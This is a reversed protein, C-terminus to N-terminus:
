KSAEVEGSWNVVLNLVSRGPRSAPVCLVVRQGDASVDAGVTGRPLRFLARPAGFRIDPGPEVPTALLTQGDGGLFYLERGDSRWRTLTLIANTLPTTGDTSVRFKRDLAPFSQVYIEFRGSEDSRYAIWRGDPSIAADLENFRTAILPAAEHDGTLPVMWIDEGTDGSLSRYILQRGDPTIDNPDNFLNPVDALLEEAGAGDARKWYLNRGGSRDSGYVVRKGDGTWIPNGDYIADFTFRTSVGRVLDVMWLAAKSEGTKQFNCAVRGGDPSLRPTYYGGSPPKVTSRVQGTRDVVEFQTDVRQPERQLLMGNNSVSVIACGSYSGSVDMLERIPKAAGSVRLSRPDFHQAVISGQRNFVLYGPAAYMAMNPSRAVVPGPRADLTGVRTDLIGDKGPLAVYLFHRGDPLFCPFRHTTEGRKADPTTAPRPEGGSAPVQMLPGSATPAFVIVGRSSWAGGRPNPAACIPQASEGDRPMRKLSGDAFFAIERSDPSWFPIKAGETGPLMRASGSALPRLWLHQVGSTDLGSFVISSGDPSLTIDPVEASVDVDEPALVSVRMTPAAPPRALLSAIAFAAAAVIAVVVAFRLRRPRAAVPGAPGAQTEAPAALAEGLAIRVEGMDRLRERADKTLCRRLLARAREPTSAPLAGWDPESQLIKAILDSVTEGEFLQRGALCEYLVCGLSWIDTRRDVAKGRAQEPSMYAATGLIVGVATEGYTRTPSASLNPESGSASAAGGKALGFDLVKVGGAPTLMVNGPKLDRHVIGSEHAAEVGFAVQRCVELAEPVPLPGRALRAALTEGDVLELVLYRAAGSEELGYIAGINPHNLSALLKAEREFRALREPDQAFAAPLVKIAVERGLRTDRARYVEGMGGAGLPAAIEYPGLRTGLPLTV